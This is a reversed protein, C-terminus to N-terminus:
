GAQTDPVEAEETVTPLEYESPEHKPSEEAMEALVRELIPDDFASYNGSNEHVRFVSFVLPGNTRYSVQSIIM